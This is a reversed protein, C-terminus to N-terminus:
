TSQDVTRDRFGGNRLDNRINMWIEAMITGPINRSDKGPRHVLLRDGTSLLAERAKEDQEFKAQCAREMLRWHQWTGAEVELSRYTLVRRDNPNDPKPAGRGARMADLGFETAISARKTSDPWKLGQWFAEVSAYVQGDLEFPAEALNSILRIDPDENTSMVNIPSESSCLRIEIQRRVRELWRDNRANIYWDERPWPWTPVWNPSDERSVNKPLDDVLLVDKRDYRPVRKLHKKGKCPWDVYRAITFWTPAEFDSPYDDTSEQIRHIAEDCRQRSLTTYIFVSEFSEYCFDLFARLGPRAACFEADSMLTHELDLAIARPRPKMETTM